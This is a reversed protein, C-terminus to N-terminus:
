HAESYKFALLIRIGTVLCLLSLAPTESLAKASQIQNKGGAGRGYLSKRFAPLPTLSHVGPDGVMIGLGLLFYPVIDADSDHEELFLLFFEM